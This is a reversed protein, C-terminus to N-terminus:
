AARNEHGREASAAIFAKRAAEAPRLAREVRHVPFWQSDAQEARPTHGRAVAAEFGADFLEARSEDLASVAHSNVATRVDTRTGLALIAAHSADDQRGNLVLIEVSRFLM